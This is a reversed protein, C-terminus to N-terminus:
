NGFFLYVPWASSHGFQALHMADSWFMLGAVVQELTCDDDRKQKIIKDHVTNWADSSYLKDYLHQEQSTTPSRWICKFPTLHFWKTAKASFVACIVATTISPGPYPALTAESTSPELYSSPKCKM